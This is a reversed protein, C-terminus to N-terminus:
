CLAARARCASARHARRGADVVDAEIQHEPQRLLPELVPLRRDVAQDVELGVM